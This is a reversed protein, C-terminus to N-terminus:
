LREKILDAMEGVNQLHEVDAATFKLGFLKELAVLINIQELSDWDEIDAASTEDSLVLSEDDFVTRFVEAMKELIEARSM